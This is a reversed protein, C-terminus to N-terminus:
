SKYIQKETKPHFCAIGEHTGVCEAIANQESSSRFDTKSPYMAGSNHTHFHIKKGCYPLTLDTEQGRVIEGPGCFGHEVDYVDTLIISELMKPLHEEVSSRIVDSKTKPHQHIITQVKQATICKGDMWSGKPCCLVVSHEDGMKRTRFSDPDCQGPSIQREKFDSKHTHQVPGPGEIHTFVDSKSTIGPVLEAIIRCYKEFNNKDYPKGHKKHVTVFDHLFSVLEPADRCHECAAAQNLAIQEMQKWNIRGMVACFPCEAGTVKDLIEQVQPHIQVTKM